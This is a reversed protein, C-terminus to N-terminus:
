LTKVVAEGFEYKEALEDWFTEDNQSLKPRQKKISDRFEPTQKMFEKLGNEDKVLVDDLIHGMLEFQQDASDIMFDDSDEGGGGSTDPPIWKIYKYEFTKKMHMPKIFVRYSQDVIM